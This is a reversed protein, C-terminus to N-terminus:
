IAFLAIEIEIGVGEDYASQGAIFAASVQHFVGAYGVADRVAPRGAFRDTM